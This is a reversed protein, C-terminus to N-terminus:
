CVRSQSSERVILRVPVPPLDGTASLNLDAMVANVVLDGAAIVNQEITTLSPSFHKAGYGGDFGVVAVDDPVGRGNLALGRIVGAALSDSAAFVGDM